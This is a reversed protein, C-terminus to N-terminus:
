LHFHKNFVLFILHQLLKGTMNGKTDTSSAVFCSIILAQRQNTCCNTGKYSTMNCKVKFEKKFGCEFARSWTLVNEFKLFYSFFIDSSASLFLKINRKNSNERTELDFGRVAPQLQVKHRRPKVCSQDPM